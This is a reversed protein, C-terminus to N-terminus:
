ANAECRRDLYERVWANAADEAGTDHITTFDMVGEDIVTKLAYDHACDEHVVDGNYCLFEEEDPLVEEGCMPCCGSDEADPANFTAGREVLLYKLAYDHACDVCVHNGNNRDYLAEDGEYLDGGCHDCRCVPNPGEPPELWYEFM